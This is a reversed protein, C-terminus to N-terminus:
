QIPIKSANGYQPLDNQIAAVAFNLNSGSPADTPVEFTLIWVGILNQAYVASDVSVGEDAVGVIVPAQPSADDGPIGGQDTGIHVGSASVPSGLGSVFARLKEGRQAPNQLTVFSGDSAHQLVARMVQDTGPSQFIGPSVPTVPVNNVPTSGSNATVTITAAGLQLDTPVQVTVFEQGAGLNCVKYIPGYVQYGGESFLVTVNSVTLPMPGVIQSGAVCGQLGPAIGVGSITLIAGPSVGGPQGGVGNTFSSSTIQPGPPTVTLAFTASFSSLSATVVTSGATAGAQVTIRAMGSSDTTAIGGNSFSVPAGSSTFRVQVNTAPGQASAVQVVLPQAFTTNTTATQGDGALKNIGSVQINVQISFIV